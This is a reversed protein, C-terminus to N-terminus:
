PYSVLRSFDFTSVRSDVKECYLLIVHGIEAQILCPELVM